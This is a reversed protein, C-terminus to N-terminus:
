EEEVCEALPVALPFGNNTNGGIDSYSESQRGAGKEEWNQTSVTEKDSSAYEKESCLIAVFCARTGSTAIM